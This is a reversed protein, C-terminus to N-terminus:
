LLSKQLCCSGLSAKKQHAIFLYVAFQYLFILAALIDIVDAIPSIDPMM